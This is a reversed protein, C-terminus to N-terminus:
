QLFPKVYELLSNQKQSFDSLLIEKDTNIFEELNKGTDNKMVRSIYTTTLANIKSNGSEDNISVILGILNNKVDFIGGGSSGHQGVKTIGTELVDIHIGDITYVNSINIVDALFTLYKRLSLAGLTGAPYGAVLIKDNINQSTLEKSNINTHQINSNINTNDNKSNISLLAFDNEGTGRSSKTFIVGANKQLWNENIYILSAKYKDIAIEGQRISCDKNPVLFNEAVHSNTLIIGNDTLIIGSGTSISVMNGKTSICFINVTSQQSNTYVNNWEALATGRSIESMIQPLEISPVPINKLSPSEKAVPSITQIVPTPIKPTTSATVKKLEINSVIKDKTSTAETTTGFNEIYRDKKLDINGNEIEIFIPSINLKAPTINSQDLKLDINHGTLALTYAIAGILIRSFLQGAFQILPGM